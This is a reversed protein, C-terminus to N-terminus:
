PSTEGDDEPPFERDWEEQTTGTMLFERQAKDLMPFCDQILEGSRWRRIADAFPAPAMPLTMAHFQGTFVSKAVVFVEDPRRENAFARLETICPM